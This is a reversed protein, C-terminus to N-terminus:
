LRHIGGPGPTREFGSTMDARAAMGFKSSPVGQVTSRFDYAGPGPVRLRDEPM